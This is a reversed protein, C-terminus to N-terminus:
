HKGTLKKANEAWKKTKRPSVELKKALEESSVRALDDLNNAGLKKLLVINKESIDKVNLLETKSPVSSDVQAPSLIPNACSIADAYTDGVSTHCYIRTRENKGFGYM